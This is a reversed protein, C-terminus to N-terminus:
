SASLARFLRHLEDEVEGPEVVTHAVEERLLERYRQRMRHVSIKVANESTNLRSALEAYPVKSRDGTLCFKLAEFQLEKGAKGFEERLREYVQNLLALAWNQEFLKEPTFRDVPEHSFRTEADAADLSVVGGGGRKQASAKRWEDTLFRNLSALLFSRFRGKDRTVSQLTNRRLLRAFFEQTLDQADHSGYGRQRVYAYLPYWYTQCLGALAV